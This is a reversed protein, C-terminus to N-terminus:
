TPEHTEGEKELLLDMKAVRESDETRMPLPGIKDFIDKPIIFDDSLMIEMSRKMFEESVKKKKEM